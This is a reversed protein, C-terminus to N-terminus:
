VNNEGGDMKAGCNPCYDYDVEFLRCPKVKCEEHNYYRHGYGAQKAIIDRATWRGHVVPVADEGAEVVDLPQVMIYRHEEVTKAGGWFIEGSGLIYAEILGNISTYESKMAVCDDGHAFLSGVPLKHLPVKGGCPILQKM